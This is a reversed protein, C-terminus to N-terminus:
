LFGMFGIVVPLVVRVRVTIIFAVVFVVVVVKGVGLLVIPLSGWFRSGRLSHWYEM